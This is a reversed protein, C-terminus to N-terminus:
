GLYERIREATQWPHSMHPCHGRGEIITFTNGPTHRRIYEIVSVPSIIDHNCNITLSPVTCKGLDDRNDSLFTTRAFHAAIAPDVRCFSDTLRQVLDADNEEDMIAPAMEGAWRIYNKEILGMMTDITEQAFGGYYEGKNIYCPSPGIWIMRNFLEPRQISVMLGIMCAVSHGTFVIDKLELSDCIEIIDSAYGSLTAYKQRDFQTSDSGGAGVFDMLVLRYNKELHPVLSSWATQDCGFGHALLITTTGKGLIHVNNRKVPNSM